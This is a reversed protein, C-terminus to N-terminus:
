GACRLLSPVPDSVPPRQCRRQRADEPEAQELRGQRVQLKSRTSSTTWSAATRQRRPAHPLLLAALLRRGGRVQGRTGGKFHVLTSAPPTTNMPSSSTARRSRASAALPRSMPAWSCSCPMWRTVAPPSCPPAATKRSRTGASSAMGPASATTTTWRATTCTASCARSRRRGQHRHVSRQLPVRLVRLGEGQSGCGGRRHRPLRELNMALPKEIILHKGAKAAAIAQDRTSARTAPSMSSM